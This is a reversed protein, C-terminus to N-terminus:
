SGEQAGQRTRYQERCQESCFYLVEGEAKEEVAVEPAVYTGCVPDRQMLGGRKEVPPSGQQRELTAALLRVWGSRVFWRWLWIIGWRLFVFLILLFALRTLWTM